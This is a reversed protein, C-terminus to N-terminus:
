IVCALFMITGAKVMFGKVRYWTHILVGKMSPIHYAPHEMVFPRPRQFYNLKKLAIGSFVVILIGIFYMSTAIFPNNPFFINTMILVIEMKAACPIFTSLMIIMRRDREEEIMRAAMISPVGCVTGIVISIFSKGSLVFKRFIRDFLFAVRSM